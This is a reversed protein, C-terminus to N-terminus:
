GMGNSRTDSKYGFPDSAFQVAPIFERPTKECDIEPKFIFRVTSDLRWFWEQNM